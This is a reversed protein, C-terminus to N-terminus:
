VDNANYIGDVLGKSVSEASTWTVDTLLLKRLTSASLKTHERYFATIHNMLKKLNEVQEEIASMKGWVGSSLQHVLMYANPQIFRKEAALTILTGASAVFGDIVSYVPVGLEKICDVVSFAANIEGGNTSMHLYLPQQPIDLALSRLKLNSALQRLSKALDFMSRQTIDDNFYIHNNSTYMSGRSKFLDELGIGNASSADSDSDDNCTALKRKKSLKPRM